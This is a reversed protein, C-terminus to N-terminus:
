TWIVLAAVLFSVADIVAVIKGSGRDRVDGRRCGAGRAPAGRPYPVLSANAEVLVDEPLMEKLLGNLAAPVVVFSIGYLFAVAYIVWVDSSVVCLCCRCCRPPPPSTAAVLFPRGLCGTWWRLRVAAGLLAPLTLFLFTLGAAGNSGTLTKVWMSMVILMLSDGGMSATLASTSGARLRPVTFARRWILLESRLPAAPVLWGVLSVLRAGEPRSAPDTVRENYSLM